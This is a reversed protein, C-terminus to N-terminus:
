AGHAVGACIAAAQFARVVQPDFQTGTCRELEELAFEHTRRPRYPRNSTMADYADAVALIRAVLPIDSAGLCDPYGRGDFREHHFRIIERESALLKLPKVIADGIESHRRIEDFEEETLRGPKLLVTDRVGIKGIDHLYGGFRIAEMEEASLGLEQAISLAYRTVRESHNRTYSDRAEITAILSKLTDALNAFLVDYLANNEIKSAVKKAFTVAIHIEEESFAAGDPKNGLCLIGFVDSAVVLPIVLLQAELSAGNFPDPEGVDAVRHRKERCVEELITGAISVREGRGGIASRIRLVGDELIGFFVENVALLKAAMEAVRAFVEKNDSLRDVDTSLSHLTIIEQLRRFMEANLRRLPVDGKDPSGFRGLLRREGIIREATSVIRDVRFPKTIFDSAGQRMAAIAVEIRSTGTIVVVPVEPDIMKIKKLFEMGNMRPMTLDTFIIDYKEVRTRDLAEVGDAATATHYGAAGGLIQALLDRMGQDDDVVLVRIIERGALM